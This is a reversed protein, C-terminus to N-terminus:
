VTAPPVAAPPVAAVAAALADTKTKLDDTVAAIAVPDVGNAALIAPIGNLLTVAGDIVTECAQVQLVLTDVAQSMTNNGKMLFQLQHIILGLQAHLLSRDPNHPPISTDEM